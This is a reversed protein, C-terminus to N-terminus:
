ESAKASLEAIKADLLEDTLDVRTVEVQQKDGYKRPRLKAAMWKRTEIQLRRHEIMDGTTTEVVNEGTTKTKSGVQPTNAIDLIEDFIADAQAERARAYMDRFFENDVHALWRFVTSRGPMAEDECISVLSEGNAIRECILTAIEQSFESPRGIKTDTM